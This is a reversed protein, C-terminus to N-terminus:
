AENSFLLGSVHRFDGVFELLEEPPYQRIIEGSKKDVIQFFDLGTEEDKDFSLNFSPDLRRNIKETLKKIKEDREPDPENVQPSFGTESLTEEPERTEQSVDETKPLESGTRGVFGEQRDLGQYSTLEGAKIAQTLM